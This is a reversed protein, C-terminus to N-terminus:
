LKAQDKSIRVVLKGTNSGEFLGALHKPCDELGTEIHFRRKLKGEKIWRAIAAEGEPYEAAFEFVIFGHLKASQSILAAYNRLGRPVQDNYGSIAGCLVIHAKKNLRSLFFDLIEGGVNDFYVDLFRVEKKFAEKWGKEKYNYAKDVGLEDVLWMCKDASGAIAIVKAGMIKGIQCVLSGTAGAAGSVVLTEGPKIEGIRFLGFYATMGNLGMASLYDLADSGPPPIIKRLSSEKATWHEAWGLTGVVIDGKKLTKGDTLVTALTFARMTEGIKVPAIYSRVDRLWGRMAAELSVFDIRVVVEDPGPKRVQVTEHVFTEDNIVGTPRKALYVRRTSSPVTL